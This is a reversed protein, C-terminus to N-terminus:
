RCVLDGSADRADATTFTLPFPTAGEGSGPAHARAKLRNTVFLAYTHGPALESVPRVALRVASAADPAIAIPLGEGTQTDVLVIPDSALNGATTMGAAPLDPSGRLELTIPHAGDVTVFRAGSQLANGAGGADLGAQSSARHVAFPRTTFPIAFQGDPELDALPIDNVDVINALTLEYASDPDLPAEPLFGIITHPLGARPKAAAPDAGRLNPNPDQGAGSGFIDFGSTTKVYGAIGAVDCSATCAQGLADRVKALTISPPKGSTGLLPFFQEGGDQPAIRPTAAEDYKVRGIVYQALFTGSVAGGQGPFPDAGTNASGVVPVSLASDRAFRATTFSWSFNAITAAPDAASVLDKLVVTYKQGPKLALDGQGLKAGVAFWRNRTDLAAVESSTTTPTTDGARSFQALPGNEDGEHLEVTGTPRGATDVEIPRSLVFEIGHGSAAAGWHALDTTPYVGTANASPQVLQVRFDGSSAQFAFTRSVGPAFGAGTVDTAGAGITLAYAQGDELPLWPIVHVANVDGALYGDSPSDYGGRLEFHLATAPGESVTDVAQPLGPVPPGTVALAVGPVSGTDVGMPACYGPLDPFDSANGRPKCLPADFRALIDPGFATFRTAENRNASLPAGTSGDAPPGQPVGALSTGEELGVYEAVSGDPQYATAIQVPHVSPDAPDFALDLAASTTLALAFSISNGDHDRVDTARVAYTAGRALAPFGGTTASAAVSQFASAVVPGGCTEVAPEIVIDPGSPDYCVSAAFGTVPAGAADTETVEIGSAPSCSAPLLNGGSEGGGTPNSSQQITSGDLTKSFRVRIRSLQLPVATIRIDDGSPVIERPPVAGNQDALIINVIRPASADASRFRDCGASTLWAAALLIAAASRLNTAKTPRPSTGRRPHDLHSM